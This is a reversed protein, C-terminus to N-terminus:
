RHQPSSTRCCRAWGAWPLAFIPAPAQRCPLYPVGQPAPQPPPSGLLGWNMGRAQGKQSRLLPGWPLHHCWLPDGNGDGSGVPSGQPEDGVEPVWHPLGWPPSMPPFGEDHHKVLTGLAPPPVLPPPDGVFVMGAAGEGAQLSGHGISSFGYSGRSGGMATGLRLCRGSGGPSGMGTPVLSHLGFRPGAAGDPGITVWEGEGARGHQEWSLSTSTPAAARPTETSSLTSRRAMPERRLSYRPPCPLEGVGPSSAPAAPPLTLTIPPSPPQM